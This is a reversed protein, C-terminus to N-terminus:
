VRETFFDNWKQFKDMTNHLDFEKTMAKGFWKNFNIKGIPGFKTSLEAVFLILDYIDSKVPVMRARRESLENRGTLGYQKLPNGCLEDFKEFIDLKSKIPWSDVADDIIGFLQSAENLSAWSKTASKLHNVIKHFAEESSFSGMINDLLRKCDGRLQFVSRFDNHMAILTTSMDPRYLAINASPKGYGSLPVSLAYQTQHPYGKIIYTMPFPCNFVYCIVGNNYYLMTGNHKYALCRIDSLSLLPKDVPICSLLCGHLMRNDTDIKNNLEAVLKVKVNSEPQRDIMSYKDTKDITSSWTRWFGKSIRFQRGDPLAVRISNDFEQRNKCEEQKKASRILLEDARLTITTINM